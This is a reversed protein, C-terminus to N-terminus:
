RAAEALMRDAETQYQPTTDRPARTDGGDASMASRKWDDDDSWRRSLRVLSDPRDMLVFARLSERVVAYQDTPDHPKGTTHGLPYDVFVTRPPRGAEIIDLASAMAFTVIGRAELDRAILSV